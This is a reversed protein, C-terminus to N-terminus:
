SLNAGGKFREDLGRFSVIAQNHISAVRKACEKGGHLASTFDLTQAKFRVHQGGRKVDSGKNGHHLLTHM